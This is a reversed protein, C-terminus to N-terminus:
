RVVFTACKSLLAGRNQRVVIRACKSLLAGRFQRMSRFYRVVIRAYWSLLAYIKKVFIRM